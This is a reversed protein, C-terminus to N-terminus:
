VFCYWGIQCECLFFIYEVVTNDTIPLVGEIFSGSRCQVVSCIESMKFFFGSVWHSEFDLFNVKLDHVSINLNSSPGRM